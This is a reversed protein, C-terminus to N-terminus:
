AFKCLQSINLRQLCCMSFLLEHESHSNIFGFLFSIGNRQLSVKFYPLGLIYSTSEIGYTLNLPLFTFFFVDRSSILYSWTFWRYRIINLIMSINQFVSDCFFSFYLIYWPSFLSQYAHAFINDQVRAGGLMFEFFILCLLVQL